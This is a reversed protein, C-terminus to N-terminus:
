LRDGWTPRDLWDMDTARIGDDVRDASLTTADEGHLKARVAGRALVVAGVAALEVAAWERVSGEGAELADLHVSALFGDRELVYRLYRELLDTAPADLQPPREPPPFVGLSAGAGGPAMEHVEWGGLKHALALPARRGDFFLPLREWGEAVEPPDEVPFDGVGPRPLDARLEARVVEDPVWQGGETLAREIRRGRRRTAELRAFTPAGLRQRVSALEAGLGNPEPEPTGARRLRAFSVGPCSLVITAQLRQGVHVTIPFERCPHPRAPHVVCRHSLLFQCAGGNPNSAVFRDRGTGAIRASPAIQLLHAREAPDIRPEAYCCLGCDPRCGFGFGELLAM